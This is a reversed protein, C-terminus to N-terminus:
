SIKLATCTDLLYKELSGPATNRLLSFQLENEWETTGKRRTAIGYLVCPTKYKVHIGNKKYVAVNYTPTSLYSVTGIPASTLLDLVQKITPNSLVLHINFLNFNTM